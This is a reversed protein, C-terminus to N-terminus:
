IWFISCVGYIGKFFEVFEFEFWLEVLGKNGVELSGGSSGFSPKVDNFEKSERMRDIRSIFIDLGIRNTIISSLSSRLNPYPLTLQLTTISSITSAYRSIGDVGADPELFECCVGLLAASLGMVLADGAFSVTTEIVWSLNSGESLFAKVAEPSDYFWEVLLSLYAVVVRSDYEKSRTITLLNYMIKDLVTSIGDVDSHAALLHTKGNPSRIIARSIASSFWTQYPDKRSTTQDM